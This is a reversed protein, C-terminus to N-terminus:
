GQRWPQVAVKLAEMQDEAELCLTSLKRKNEGNLYIDEVQSTATGDFDFGTQGTM